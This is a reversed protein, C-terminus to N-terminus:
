PSKAAIKNMIYTDIIRELSKLPVSGNELVKDHFERLDFDDSLASEARRRLERIKLEGMKYSVAQGPWGIYRDIETKVEHMSLATHSAMFEIAEDRTWGKFHMGPDVVLRCARWMEYTLAGFEEYLSKYMGAEKGLYEAYLGWGEGFASIYTKRFAPRGKLEAALMIQLHHGPVGEHLSLAPLVYYPRSDLKYTNVWYQGARNKEYSGPSYRGTTYTPALAHPVPKVTLPMRPLKGFYKPLEGEMEKTIWAARNLLERGSKPYFQPDTRLFHLFAAFDGDFELAEIIDEMEGRIRSVETMGMQFIEEPSIDYTTFYRVLEKYRERGDTVGSIGVATPADHLYPGALFTRLSQYAPLVKEKYLKTVEEQYEPAVVEVFFVDQVPTKILHDILKICNNIVVQPSSKGQRQGEEMHAQRQSLYDPLAMLEATYKIISVSDNVARGRIAYVIGGLFGGESNLPMLHSEFSLEHAWNNLILTLMEFNTQQESSLTSQDLETLRNQLHHVSAIEQDRKIQSLDPWYSAAQDDTGAMLEYDLIIDSISDNAVEKEIAMSRPACGILLCLTIITLVIKM